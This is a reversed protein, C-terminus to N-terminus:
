VVRRAPAKFPCRNAFFGLREQVQVFRSQTVAATRALLFQDLSGESELYATLPGPAADPERVALGRARAVPRMADKGVASAMMHRVAKVASPSGTLSKTNEGGLNNRPLNLHESRWQFICSEVKLAEGVIQHVLWAHHDDYRAEDLRAGAAAIADPGADADGTALAIVEAGLQGYLDTFMHYHLCVSHSGSTLGLNERIEHYDSTALNDAMPPVAAAVVDMLATVCQLRELARHLRGARIDLVAQECQDNAEEGLTEPIQHLGRFQTFYTDGQLVREYVCERIFDTHVFAEFSETEVPVAVRSLNAEWITSEQNGVRLLHLLHFLPDDLSRNAIAGDVDLSNAAALERVCGDVARLKAVYAAFAPSDAIRLVSRARAGGFAASLRAPLLSIATLVRHFGRAWSLKVMAPGVRGARLDDDAREFVDALNLLGFEAAQLVARCLSEPSAKPLPHRERMADLVRLGQLDYYTEAIVGRENYVRDVGHDYEIARSSM